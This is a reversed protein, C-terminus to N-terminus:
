EITLITDKCKGIGVMIADPLKITDMESAMFMCWTLIYLIKLLIRGPRWLSLWLSRLISKCEKEIQSVNLNRMSNASLRKIREIFLNM